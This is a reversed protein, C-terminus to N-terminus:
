VADSQAPKNKRPRTVCLMCVSLKTPISWRHLHDRRQQSLKNAFYIIRCFHAVCLYNCWLGSSCIYLHQARTAYCNCSRARITRAITQPPMRVIYYICYAHVFIHILTHTHMVLAAAAASLSGMAERGFHNIANCWVFPGRVMFLNNSFQTTTKIVMKAQANAHSRRARWMTSVLHHHGLALSIRILRTRGCLAASPRIELVVAM